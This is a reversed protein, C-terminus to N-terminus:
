GHGRAWSSEADIACQRDMVRCLMPERQEGQELLLTDDFDVKRPHALDVRGSYLQQQARLARGPGLLFLQVQQTM